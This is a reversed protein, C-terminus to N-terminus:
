SETIIMQYGSGHINRITIREEKQLYSRLKSVYVNLSRARFNNEDSWIQKLAVERLIIGDDSKCFMHLLQSEIWSLRISGSEHKLERVAPNFSYSCIEYAIQDKRQVRRSQFRKLIAQIRLYLEKMSFPKLIYDDAGAELGKIKDEQDSQSTLFLFPIDPNSNTIKKALGYGDELPMVIDLICLDFSQKKFAEFGDYANHCLVCEFDKAELYEKVLPSLTRDDDVILIKHM